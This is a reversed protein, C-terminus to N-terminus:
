DRLRGYLSALARYATAQAWHLMPTRAKVIWYQRYHFHGRPDQMNAIAWRAVKLAMTLASPELEAFNALTDISQSICQSDIPLTRDHYYRPRGDEEFFHGVYFKFGRRLNPEFSTDGTSEIYSKISDLNYGTHFNDIWHQNPQEGYHWSGDPMQCSCSYGLASRAIGSYRLDGLHKGARALFAAAVMNHNHISTADGSGTYSFCIGKDSQNRDLHLVWRCISEAVDLYKREGFSEFAELFFMGILCTWITIPEFRGYRGTRSAFDFHKGWCFEEYALSKNEMLWELCRRAREKYGGNGTAKEMMIYGSAMYGRGITSDLPKIGLLPRLNMPSQRVLQLLLRDLFLSGFTLPRFVSSLGDFPEYGKFDHDEVWREVKKLSALIVEKM